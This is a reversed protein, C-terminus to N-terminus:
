KLTKLRRCCQEDVVTAGPVAVAPEDVVVGDDPGNNCASLVLALAMILSILLLRHSRVNAKYM